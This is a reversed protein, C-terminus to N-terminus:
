KSNRSAGGPWGTVDGVADSSFLDGSAERRENKDHEITHRKGRRMDNHARVIKDFLSSRAPKYGASTGVVYDRFLAILEDDTLEIYNNTM